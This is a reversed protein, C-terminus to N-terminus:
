QLLSLVSQPLSNAQSLISVGAQQLIQARTLAATEAAFDADLIRSRAASLNESTIALNSITSEFRNQVAGLDARITSIQSLSGDLVSIAANAGAVTSIDVGSLKTLAASAGSLGGEALDTGGLTFSEAASLTLTGRTTVGDADDAPLTGTTVASTIAGAVSATEVIAGATAVTDDGLLTSTLTVVLATGTNEATVTNRGATTEANVANFLATAAVTADAGDAVTVAVNSGSAVGNQVFQFVQGGITVEDGAAATAGSVIGSTGPDANVADTDFTLVAVENGTANAGDNTDLGISNLINQTSAQRTAADTGGTALVINRGDSATLALAGTAANAIATVGTQNSIANIAVAANRGQTVASADAAIAGVDIGNITLEGNTLGIGALPTIGQVTNAATATVGTDSTKSNIATAKAAASDATLGAAATGVSVGVEVSNITFSDGDFAATGVANGTAQYAGLIDTTAGTIGFSITQNANAGVQFQASSFSGDLIKQGNFETTQGVRQVEALLQQVEANLAKRDSASNTSNASQIALQRIRQLSNSSAGLAGEATQALSIGDNANRQAQDLGRIQTTFRESIALGAADDKASNIRLGSSLRQLSTSLQSQSTNLNRQATLSAINSNIIQPM